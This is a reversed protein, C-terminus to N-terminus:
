NHSFSSRHATRRERPVPSLQAIGADIDALLLDALDHSFGNRVVVRLVVTEQANPPLRYAPVQWGRERLHGSLDFADFADSGDRIKWAFVPLESGDTVLTFPDRAAIAGSLHLAVDQSAQQAQIYGQRGLRLFTYYQGLIQNGPRSFNLTFTPMEGGLYNVRFVLEDRLADRDRWPAWGVRPLGPRVQARVRQDLLGAPAQLGV